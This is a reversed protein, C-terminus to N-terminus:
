SVSDLPGIPRMGHVSIIFGHPHPFVGKSPAAIASDILVDVAIKDRLIHALAKGLSPSITPFKTASPRLPVSVQQSELSGTELLTKRGIDSCPRLGVSM